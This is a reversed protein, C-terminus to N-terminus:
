NIVEAYKALALVQQGCFRMIRHLYNRQEEDFIPEKSIRDQSNLKFLEDLQSHLLEFLLAAEEETYRLIVTRKAIGNIFELAKMLTEFVTEKGDVTVIFEGEIRKLTPKNM